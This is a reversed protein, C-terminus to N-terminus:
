GREEKTNEKRLLRCTFFCRRKKRLSCCDKGKKSILDFVRGKKESSEFTIPLGSFLGKFKEPIYIKDQEEVPAVEM